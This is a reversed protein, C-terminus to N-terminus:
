QNRWQKRMSMKLDSICRLKEEDTRTRDNAINKRKALLANIQRAVPEHMRGIVESTGVGKIYQESYKVAM